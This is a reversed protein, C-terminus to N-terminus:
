GAGPNVLPDAMDPFKGGLERTLRRACALVLPAHDHNLRHAPMTLTVAGALVDGHGFVPASIGSIESSRDREMVIVGERRIRDYLAGKAGNFAMLVRAGAGRDIPLIDGVQIHERVLQPSEVRFLCIRQGNQLVHFAASERTKEVLGALEPVVVSEMSFSKSYASFLRPVENGLEYGAATKRVLSGHELSALLRLVTSKYLGTATALETLTLTKREQSFTHLLAIARDVAVAGGPAVPLDSASELASKKPM